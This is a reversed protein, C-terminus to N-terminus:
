RVSRKSLWHKPQHPIDVSAFHLKRYPCGAVASGTCLYPSYRGIESAEKAVSIRLQGRKFTTCGLANM